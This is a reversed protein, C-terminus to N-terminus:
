FIIEFCLENLSKLNWFNFIIFVQTKHRVSTVDSIGFKKIIVQSIYRIYNDFTSAKEHLMEFGFRFYYIYIQYAYELSLESYVKLRFNWILFM